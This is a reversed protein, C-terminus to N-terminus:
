DEVENKIGSMGGGSGDKEEANETNGNNTGNNKGKEKRYFDKMTNSNIERNGKRVIEFTKLLLEKLKTLM